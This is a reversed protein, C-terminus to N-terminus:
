DEDDNNDEKWIFVCNLVFIVFFVGLLTLAFRPVIGFMIFFIAAMIEWFCVNILFLM